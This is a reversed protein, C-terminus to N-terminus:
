PSVPSATGSLVGSCIWYETVKLSRWRLRLHSGENLLCRCKQCPIQSLYQSCNRFTVRAANSFSTTAALRVPVAASSGAHKLCQLVCPEVNLVSFVFPKERSSATAPTGLAGYHLIDMCAMMTCALSTHVHVRARVSMRLPLM